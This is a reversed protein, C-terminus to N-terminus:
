RGSSRTSATPRAKSAPRASHACRTKSRPSAPPTPSAARPTSFAVPEARVRKAKGAHVLRVPAAPAALRLLTRAMAGGQNAECVIMNAEFGEFAAAVAAAWDAPARGQVTRDALVIARRARGQGGAGAVVIGCADARPGESAPPDVAVVVRDMREPRPAARAADLAARTWLAGAPDEILEGDLEQRAWISGAWRAQLDDVFGPALNAANDATTARTVVCSPDVLLRKVTAVPRPTTTLVMRPDLGLRLAPRLTDLVAQGKAWAAVEDGWACDFQPGRLSDPDEASFVHALRGDPWVLRRRSSEYRPRFGTSAIARLGSPGEIMVERADSLTPGVLAACSASGSEMRERMWEAAARTKGAGRGGLFLWTRWPGPPPLQSPRAWLPWTQMLDTLQRASLGNLLAAILAKRRPNGSLASL